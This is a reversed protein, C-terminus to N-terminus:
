TAFGNSALATVAGYSKWRVDPDGAMLAPRVKQYEQGQYKTYANQDKLHGTRIKAGSPFRIEVPNGVFEARTPLNLERARDIWDRLDDANRRLVLARYRPKDIDYLLWAQGADTKGGGRAGGYLIEDELRTLAIAQKPQPTWHAQM